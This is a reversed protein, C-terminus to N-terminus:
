IRSFPVSKKREHLFMCSINQSFMELFIDLLKHIVTLTKTKPFTQLNQVSSSKRHINTVRRTSTEKFCALIVNWASVAHKSRKRMFAFVATLKLGCTGNASLFWVFKNSQTLECNRRKSRYFKFFADTEKPILSGMKLFRDRQHADKKGYPFLWKRGYYMFYIITVDEDCKLISCQICEAVCQMWVQYCLTNTRDGLTMIQCPWMYNTNFQDPPHPSWKRKKVWITM